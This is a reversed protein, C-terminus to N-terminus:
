GLRAPSETVPGIWLGNAAAAAGALETISTSLEIFFLVAVRQGLRAGADEIAFGSEGHIAACGFGLSGGAGGAPEAARM